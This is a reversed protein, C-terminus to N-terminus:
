DREPGVGPTPPPPSGRGDHFAGCVTCHRPPPYRIGEAKGVKGDRGSPKARPSGERKASVRALQVMNPATGPPPYRQEDGLAMRRRGDFRPLPTSRGNVPKPMAWIVSPTPPPPAEIHGSDWAGTHACIYRRRQHSAGLSVTASMSKRPQSAACPSTHDPQSFVGFQHSQCSLVM